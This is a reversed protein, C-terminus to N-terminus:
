KDGTCGKCRSSSHLNDGNQLKLKKFNDISDTLLRGSALVKIENRERSFAGCMVIQRSPEHFLYEGPFAVTEEAFEVFKM